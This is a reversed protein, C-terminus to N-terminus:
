HNDAHFQTAEKAFIDELADAQELEVDLAVVDPLYKFDDTAVVTTAEGPQANLGFYKIPLKEKKPERSLIHFEKLLSMSHTALIIQFGQRALEALIVALKRLLAPNLNAEPEDWYLTSNKTLSGNALLKQLTGFKRLGEALM